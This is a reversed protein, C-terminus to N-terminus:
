GVYRKIASQLQIIYSVNDQYFGSAKQSKHLYRSMNLLKNCHIRKGIKNGYLTFRKLQLCLVLPPLELSFQKTAQSIKRCKECKYDNNDLRSASILIILM